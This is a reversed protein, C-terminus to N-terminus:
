LMQNVNKINVIFTAKISSTELLKAKTNLGIYWNEPSLNWDNKMAKIGENTNVMISFMIYMFLNKWMFSDIPNLLANRDVGRWKDHAIIIDYESNM